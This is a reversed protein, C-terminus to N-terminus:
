KNFIPAVASVEPTREQNAEKKVPKKGAIASSQVQYSSSEM